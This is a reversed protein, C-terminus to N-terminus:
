LVRIYSFNKLNGVINKNYNELVIEYKIFVEPYLDKIQNLLLEKINEIHKDKWLHYEEFKNLNDVEWDIRQEFKKLWNIKYKKEFIFQTSIFQEIAPNPSNTSLGIKHINDTTTKLINKFHNSVYKVVGNSVGFVSLNTGCNTQVIPYNKYIASLKKSVNLYASQFQYEGINETSEPWAFLIEDFQIHNSNFLFYDIDFHIYETDMDSYAYFKNLTADYRDFVNEPVIRINTYYTNKFIEASINDAYLIVDNYHKSLLFSSLLSM